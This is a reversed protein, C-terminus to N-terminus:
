QTALYLTAVTKGSVAETELNIELRRGDPHAFKLFTSGLTRAEDTERFGQSTLERRYFNIIRELSDGTEFTIEQSNKLESRSIVVSPQYIPMEVATGSVEGGTKELPKIILDQSQRRFYLGGGLLLLSVAIVSPVLFRRLNFFFDPIRM